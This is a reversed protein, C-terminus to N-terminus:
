INSIHAMICITGMYSCKNTADCYSNNCYIFVDMSPSMTGYLITTSKLALFCLYPFILVFCVKGTDIRDYYYEIPWPYNYLAVVVCCMEVTNALTRPTTYFVFWQLLHIVLALLGTRPGCLRTALKYVHLDTMAGFILTHVLRPALLFVGRLNHLGTLRLIAYVAAMLYPYIYSRLAIDPRWEWTLHGVGFVLNHAPELSQWQEDPVFYTQILLCNIFRIAACICLLHRESILASMQPQM